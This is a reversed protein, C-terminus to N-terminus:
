GLLSVLVFGRYRTFLRIPIESRFAFHLRSHGEVPEQYDLM